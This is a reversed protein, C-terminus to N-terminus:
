YDSIPSEGFSYPFMSPLSLIIVWYHQLVTDM